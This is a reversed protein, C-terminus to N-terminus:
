IKDVAYPASPMPNGKYHLKIDRYSLSRGSKEVPIRSVHLTPYTIAVLNTRKLTM